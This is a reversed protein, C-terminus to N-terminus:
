HALRLHWWNDCAMRWCGDDVPWRWYLSVVRENLWPRRTQWAESWENAARISLSCWEEWLSSWGAWLMLRSCIRPPSNVTATKHRSERMFKVKGTCDERWRFVYGKIISFKICEIASALHLTLTSQVRYRCNSDNSAVDEKIVPVGIPMFRLCCSGRKAWRIM